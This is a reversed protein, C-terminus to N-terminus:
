DHLTLPNQQPFVPTDMVLHVANEAPNAWSLSFFSKTISFFFKVICPQVSIIMPNQSLTEGF